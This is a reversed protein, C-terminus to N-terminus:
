NICILSPAQYLHAFFTVLGKLRLSFPRRDSRDGHNVITPKFGDISLSMTFQPVTTPANLGSPNYECFGDGEDISSDGTVAWFTYDGRDDEPRRVKADFGAAELVFALGSYVADRRWELSDNACISSFAPHNSPPLARLV